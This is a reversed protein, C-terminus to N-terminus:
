RVPGADGWASQLLATAAIAATESRLIRPGLGWARFGAAAAAEVEAESWGGEPGIAILCSHPASGAALPGGGPHLLLRAGFDRELRLLRHFDIPEAVRSIASRGCQKCAEAAVRQWRSLKGAFSRRSAATTRASVLPIIESAGLETVKQVIREFGDGKPVAAALTLALPSELAPLPELREARASRRDVRTLRARYCHGRGDFLVIEDGPKLRLVDRLHHAEPGRIEPESETLLEPVFFRRERM